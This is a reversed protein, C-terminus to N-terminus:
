IFFISGVDMLKNQSLSISKMGKASIFKDIKGADPHLNIDGNFVVIGEGKIVGCAGGMFGYNLGPLNVYGSSILLVEVNYQCAMKAIGPDSTIISNDDLVVVSCKTYGQKVNILQYGKLTLEDLLITDTYCFNHLIKEGVKAVNFAINDPYKRKLENKGYIVNIHLSKLDEITKEHIQPHVVIRNDELPFCQIDPHSRISAYLPNFRRIFIIEKTFKLLKNYVDKTIDESVIIKM